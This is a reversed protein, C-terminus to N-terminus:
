KIITTSMPLLLKEPNVKIVMTVMSDLFGIQLGKTLMQNFSGAIRDKTHVVVCGVTSTIMADEAVAEMEEAVMAVVVVVVEVVMEEAVLM